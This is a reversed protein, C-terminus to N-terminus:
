APLPRAPERRVSRGSRAPRSQARRRLPPRAARQGDAGRSDRPPPTSGICDSCILLPLLMAFGRTAMTPRGLTPLDISKLRRTPLRSDMTSSVGPTVRSRSYASHSHHPLVKSITSVPPMSGLVSLSIRSKIRSCAWIAISAASTIMRTVSMRVPTVAASLSTALMSSREFFGMTSATLM